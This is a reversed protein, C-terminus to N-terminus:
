EVVLEKVGWFYGDGNPPIYRDFSAQKNGDQDITLVRYFYQGSELGKVTQTTKLLEDKSYIVQNFTPDRSIELTYSLDDGQLDFSYDWTFVHQGEQNVEVKTFIPLPKELEREFKQKNEMPNQILSYYNQDFKDLDIELYHLDPPRTILPFVEKYYSDIFTKTQQPTVITLLEEIKHQLDRINNSDKFFRRHLVSGWYRSIGMQWKPVRPNDKDWGWAGDYDWPLFYWKSSNTPSYLYYNSSMTDVNGFLINAAIWTLYNERDFHKGFVDQFNLSYNNVDELMNILNQHDNSGKIEIINEFQKEDYRPDEKLVIKDPYRFFEFNNTKYLHGYPNLGHSGLFSKNAQEVHTYLGYSEFGTPPEKKTLDKVHLHVFHTRVSTIDPLIEFYDFSLKNKVRTQDNVHKNLNLTDQGKWLEKDEFLKIKYSKQVESRSSNGRIEVTGNALPDGLNRDLLNPGKEDGEQFFVNLEPSAEKYSRALYWHNLDFFSLDEDQEPLITVYVHAVEGDQDYQYIRTDEQVGLEEFQEKPPNEPNPLSDEEKVTSCGVVLTIVVGILFLYSGKEM